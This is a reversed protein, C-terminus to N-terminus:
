QTKRKFMTMTGTAEAPNPMVRVLSAEIEANDNPNGIVTVFDGEKLDATTIEKQFERLTTSSSMVVTKEIGDPGAVIFRPLAVSVITGAAGHGGPINMFMMNGKMGSRSGLFNREFSEGYKGAFRARHEGLTVGIGLVGLLVIIVGIGLLAGRVFKKDHLDEWKM